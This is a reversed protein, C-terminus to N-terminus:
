KKEEIKIRRKVIKYTAFPDNELYEKRRKKVEALTDEALIYEWRDGYGWNGLLQFEDYTKRKYAM